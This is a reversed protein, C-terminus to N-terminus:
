LTTVSWPSPKAWHLQSNQRYFPKTLSRFMREFRDIVLANSFGLIPWGNLLLVMEYRFKQLESLYSASAHM